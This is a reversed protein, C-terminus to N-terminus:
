AIAIIMKYNKKKFKKLPKAGTATIEFYQSYGIDSLFETIRLANKNHDQRLLEFGLVPHAHRLIAECGLLAEYEHGEVDIKIFGIDSFNEPSIYQDIRACEFYISEGTSSASSDIIQAAGLNGRPVVAEVSHQRNSAGIQVPIVKPNWRANLSLVEFVKPNPEFAVVSEFYKSFALSHNGINAGIDLCCKRTKLHPFFERELVGLEHDEFRGQLMVKLSVYDGSVVVMDPHLSQHREMLRVASNVIFKQWLRDLINM